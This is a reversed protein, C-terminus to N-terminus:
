MFLAVVQFGQLLGQKQAIASQTVLNNIWQNTLSACCAQPTAASPALLGRKNFTKAL